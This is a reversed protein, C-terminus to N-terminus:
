RQNAALGIFEFSYQSYAVHGGGFRFFNVLPSMDGYDVYTQNAEKFAVPSPMGKKEMLYWHYATKYWGDISSYFEIFKERSIGIKNLMKDTVSHSAPADLDQTRLADFFGAMNKDFGKLSLVDSLDQIAKTASGSNVGSIKQNLKQQGAFDGADLVLDRFLRGQRTTYFEAKLSTKGSTYMKMAELFLPPLTDPDLKGAEIQRLWQISRTLYTPNMIYRSHAVSQVLLASLKNRLITNNVVDLLLNVKTYQSMGNLFKKLVRGNEQLSLDQAKQLGVQRSFFEAHTRSVYAGSLTHSFVASNGPKSIVDDAKVWQGKIKDPLTQWESETLLRGESRFKNALELQHINNIIDVSTKFFTANYGSVIKLFDSSDFNEKYATKLFFRETQQLTSGFRLAVDNKSM